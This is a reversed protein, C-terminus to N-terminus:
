RVSRNLITFPSPCAHSLMAALKPRNKAKQFVASRHLAVITPKASSGFAHTPEPM